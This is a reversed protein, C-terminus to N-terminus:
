CCNRQRFFDAAWGDYLAQQRALITKYLNFYYYDSPDFAAAPVGFM